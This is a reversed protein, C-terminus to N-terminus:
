QPPGILEYSPSPVIQLNNVEDPHWDTSFNPASGGQMRRLEEFVAIPVFRAKLQGSFASVTQMDQWHVQGQYFRDAEAVAVIKAYDIHTYFVSDPSFINGSRLILSGAVLQGQPDWMESFFAKGESHLAKM